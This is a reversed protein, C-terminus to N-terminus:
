EYGGSINVLWEWYNRLEESRQDVPYFLPQSYKEVCFNAIINQGEESVLFEIFKIVLNYKVDPYKAPNVAYASYINILIPSKMEFAKLNPIKGDGSFKLFTGIDSITYALKENAMILTEAMGSGTELYWEKGKPDLGALKWLLLERQHTGSNDGRSIFFTLGQECANYIQKMAEIPDSVESVGAPDNIPGVIVFYNYAFITQNMIIGSDIYQKELDPAHVLVGDVDGRAALQLAAGSGVAIFQVDVNPYKQSFTDAIADLLGTAYLSTTTSIRLPIKYYYRMYVEYSIISLAIIAVIIIAMIRNIRM